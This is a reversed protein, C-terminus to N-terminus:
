HGLDTSPRQSEDMSASRQEPAPSPQQPSAAASSAGSESARSQPAEITGRPQEQSAQIAIHRPRAAESVPLRITLIGNEYETQVHDMDVPREFSMSRTFTGSHLEHILWNGQPVDSSRRYQGHITLMHQDITLSIDEPKMGPLAARVVYNNNEEYVDVPLSTEVGEGFLHPRIFSQEFLQNIANRLSLGEGFPDYRSMSM